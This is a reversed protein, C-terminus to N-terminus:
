QLKEMTERVQNYKDRTQKRLTDGGEIWSGNFYHISFTNNNTIDEGNVFNYPSFYASSYVNIGNLSQCADEVKLGMQMLPWTEYFGSAETNLSGDENIFRVNKRFELIKKVVENHKVCGSGGGFNVHGQRERGCFAPQYRLPDLSKLIRVDTDFYFGGNEFLIELRAIDPVFGWKKMQYAENTYDNRKINYNSEDWRIIEYDPCAEAWSDICKQLCDPIPNGSFWCYNIVKPIVPTENNKFLQSDSDKGYELQMVAAVFVEIDKCIDISDM